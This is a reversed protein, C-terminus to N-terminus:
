GGAALDRHVNSALVCKCSMLLPAPNPRSPEWKVGRYPALFSHDVSPEFIEFADHRDDSPDLVAAVRMLRDKLFVTDGHRM